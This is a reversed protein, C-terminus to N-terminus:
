SETTYACDVLSAFSLSLGAALEAFRTRLFLPLVVKIGAPLM